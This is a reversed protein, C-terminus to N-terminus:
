QNEIRFRPNKQGPLSILPNRPPTCRYAACTHGCISAALASFSRKRIFVLYTSSPSYLQNRCGIFTPWGFSNRFLFVDPLARDKVTKRVDNINVYVVEAILGITIELIFKDVSYPHCPVYNFITILIPNFKSSVDSDMVTLGFCSSQNKHCCSKSSQGSDAAISM